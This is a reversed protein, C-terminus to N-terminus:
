QYLELPNMRQWPGGYWAEFHCHDGTAWGTAGMLGIQQGKAVTQGAKVLVEDQHAYMTYYGNNHNIIVINGWGGNSWGAEMVTGNNAAYIPSRHGTGAIDLGTHFERAGTIPSIRWEYYSTIMYGPNTPWAWNTTSGVNPIAKSGKVVVEDRPYKLVENEGIPEVKVVDGNVTTTLRSVRLLGNEGKTVVEEYGIVKEPDTQEVVQYQSEVDERVEKEVVIKLQPDTVGIVVEQGPFLLSSSSTFQRNSILFEQTSIKNDMAVSPITDGEKVVYIKQDSTTAFLLYKALSVDDVYIIENVPIQMQKITIDDDVYVNNIYYGTTQIKTQTGDYYAKYDNEGLFTKIMSEVAKKFIDDDLVYLEKVITEDTNKEHSKITIKYGEVTFSSKESIIDYMDEVSTTKNKYTAHKRIQLGNPENIKDAYLYIQNKLIYNNLIYKENDTLLGEVCNLSDTQVNSIMSDKELLKLENKYEEKFESLIKDFKEKEESSMEQKCNYDLLLKYNEVNQKVKNGEETIYKKLEKESKVTGLLEDELYVQYYENPVEKERYNFGLIFVMLSIIVLTFITGVKKM